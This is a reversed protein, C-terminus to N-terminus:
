IQSRSHSGRPSTLIPSVVTSPRLMEELGGLAAGLNRPAPWHDRVQLSGLRGFFYMIEICGLLICLFRGELMELCLAAVLCHDM